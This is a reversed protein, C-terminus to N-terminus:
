QMVAMAEDAEMVAWVDRTRSRKLDNNRSSSYSQNSGLHSSRKEKISRRREKNRKLTGEDPVGMLTELLGREMETETFSKLTEETMPLTGEMMSSRHRRSKRREKRFDVQQGDELSVSQSSEDRRPRHHHHKKKRRLTGNDTIDIDNGLLARLQTDETVDRSRRHHSRHNSKRESPDKLAARAAQLAEQEAQVAKAIRKKERAAKKKEITQIVRERTTRFELSFESLIKCVHHVKYDSQMHVPIGMWQLFKSFRQMVKKYVTNMVIIREASDNLFAEMKNKTAQELELGNDQKTVIKLYDWALKCESELRTLTKELEEFDTRSSRTIPGLESYMDSCGPFQELVWYTMHYLLSHKHVTDKVEPIKSLYDLQFGKCQTSNLFNGVSLLVSLIVKFTQNKMLSEIGIKLDMLPECVERETVEFEMKFAWLRLRAELCHISALTSLFQEATGLPIDPQAEQAEQIRAVEEDTPLMTLLKEVGERNMISADMKMVASKIVRTPPLKTMGINIANSRKHDLVVIERQLSMLQKNEKIVVDKGRNEFLYEVMSLDLEAKDIEDWVTKGNFSILPSERIEKWFLKVTKKHKKPVLKPKGDEGLAPPPPIPPPGFGPGPPPPPIGRQLLLPSPPLPPPVPINSATEPADSTANDSDDEQLDRFDLDCIVLDREFNALIEEWRLEGERQFDKQQQQSQQELQEESILTEGKNLKAVFASRAKELFGNLSMANLRDGSASTPLGHRVLVAELDRLSVGAIDGTSDTEGEAIRKTKCRMSKREIFNNSVVASKKRLSTRLGMETADEDLYSIEEETVPEGDEQKLAVNYLQIQQLMGEDTAPSDSIQQCISQMDLEEMYDTHEYFTDQDPIGFLTKNILTMAFTALEVDVIDKKLVSIVNSWPIVGLEKDVANIANILILCNNETYEVFVLLLKVATKCVLHNSSDILKYLFQVADQSAMVGNMGDVYLMIQGLARLVLNQLQGEHDNSLEILKFIGGAQVFEYVINKDTQFISKLSFLLRKLDTGSSGRIREVLKQAKSPAEDSEKVTDEDEPLLLLEEVGQQLEASEALWERYGKEEMDKPDNNEEEDEDEEDYEDEDGDTRLSKKPISPVINMIGETIWPARIDIDQNPQPRIGFTTKGYDIDGEELQEVEQEEPVDDEYYEEWEWDGEEEEGGQAAQNEEEIMGEDWQEDTVTADEHDKTVTKSVSKNSPSYQLPYKSKLWWPVEEEDLKKSPIANSLDISNRREPHLQSELVPAGFAVLNNPATDKSLLIDIDITGSIFTKRKRSKKNTKNNRSKGLEDEEDDIYDLDSNDELISDAQIEYSEDRNSQDMINSTSEDEEEEETEYEYESEDDDSVTTLPPPPLPRPPRVFSNTGPLLQQMPAKEIVCTDDDEEELERDALKEVPIEQISKKVTAYYDFSNSPMVKRHTLTLEGYEKTRDTQIAISIMRPPRSRKLVFEFPETTRAIRSRKQKDADTQPSTARSVMWVPGCKALFDNKEQDEEAELRKRWLSNANPTPAISDSYGSDNSRTDPELSAGHRALTETIKRAYADIKSTKQDLGFGNTSGLDGFSEFLSRSNSRSASKYKRDGFGNTLNSNSTSM